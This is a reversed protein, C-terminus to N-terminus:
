CSSDVISKAFTMWTTWPIVQRQSSLSGFVLHWSCLYGHSDDDGSSFVAPTRHGKLFMWFFSLKILWTFMAFDLHQYGYFVMRLKYEVNAVHSKVCQSCWRWIEMCIAFILPALWSALKSFKQFYSAVRLWVLNGIVRWDLPLLFWSCAESHRSLRWRCSWFGGLYKLVQPWSWLLSGLLLPNVLWGYVDLVERCGM